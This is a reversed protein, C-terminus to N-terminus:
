PAPTCLRYQQPDVGSVGRLRTKGAAKHIAVAPLALRGEGTGGATVGVVGIDISCPIDAGPTEGLDRPRAAHCRPIQRIPKELM